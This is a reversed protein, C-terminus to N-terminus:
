RRQRKSGHEYGRPHDRESGYGREDRQRKSDHGYGRPDRESGYGRDDRQRKSDHGYGHPDRESGYGRDDRPRNPRGHSHVRRNYYPGNSPGRVRNYGQKYMLHVQGQFYEMKEQSRQCNDCCDTAQQATKVAALDAHHVTKVAALDAQHAAEQKALETQYAAKQKDLDAQHAANLKALEAQHAANLKALEAEHATKQEGLQVGRKAVEDRLKSRESVINYMELVQREACYWTGPGGDKAFNDASLLVTLEDADTYEGRQNSMEYPVLTATVEHIKGYGARRVRIVLYKKGKFHIIRGKLLASPSNEPATPSDGKTNGMNCFEEFIRSSMMNGVPSKTCYDRIISQSDSTPKGNTGIDAAVVVGDNGAYHKHIAAEAERAAERAPVLAFDMAVAPPAAVAPVAAAPAAAAPAAARVENASTRGYIAMSLPCDDFSPEM